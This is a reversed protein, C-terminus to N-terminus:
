LVINIKFMGGGVNWKLLILGKWVVLGVLKELLDVGSVGGGFM